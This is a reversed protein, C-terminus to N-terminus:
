DRNRIATAPVGGVVVGRPVDKTVVSGAGVVSGEGITVGPLLVASAGIWVHDGVVIPGGSHQSLETLSHGSAHFRVNPAIYVDSGLVIKHRGQYDPYFEVGRNVSVHDGLEVLWPFKIYIGYDFFTHRGARGLMMRFCPNRVFGPALNLVLHLLHIIYVYTQNAVRKRVQDRFLWAELKAKM